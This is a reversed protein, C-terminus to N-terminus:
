IKMATSNLERDRCFVFIRLWWSNQEHDPWGAPIALKECQITARGGALWWRSVVLRVNDMRVSRKERGREGARGRKLCFSRAVGRTHTHTFPHITHTATHIYIQVYARYVSLCAPWWGATLSHFHGERLLVALVEISGRTSSSRGSPLCVSLWASLCVSLCLSLM